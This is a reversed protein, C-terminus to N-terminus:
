EDRLLEEAHLARGASLIEGISVDEASWMFHEYETTEVLTLEKFYRVARQHHFVSMGSRTRGLGMRKTLIALWTGVSESRRPWEREEIETSTLHEKM